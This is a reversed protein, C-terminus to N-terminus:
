ANGVMPIRVSRRHRLRHNVVGEGAAELDGDGAPRKVDSAGSGRVGLADHQGDVADGAREHRPSSDGALEIFSDTQQSWIQAAAPAAPVQGTRIPQCRM